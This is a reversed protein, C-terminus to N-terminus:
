WSAPTPTSGPNPGCTGLRMVWNRSSGLMVSVTSHAERRQPSSPPGPLSLPLVSPGSSAGLPGTGRLFYFAAIRHFQARMDTHQAAHTDVSPETCEDPDLKLTHMCLNTSM